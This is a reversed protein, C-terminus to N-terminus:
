NDCKITPKLSYDKLLDQSLCYITDIDKKVIKLYKNFTKM